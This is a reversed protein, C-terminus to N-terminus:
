GLGSQMVKGGNVKFVGRAAPRIVPHVDHCWMCGSRRRELGPNREEEEEEERLRYACASGLEEDQWQSSITHFGLLCLRPSVDELAAPPNAM